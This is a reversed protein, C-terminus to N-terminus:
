PLASSILPDLVALYRSRPLIESFSSKVLLEIILYILEWKKSTGLQFPWMHPINDMLKTRLLTFLSLTLRYITRVVHYKKNEISIELPLM